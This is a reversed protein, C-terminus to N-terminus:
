QREPECAKRYTADPIYTKWQAKTLEAGARACVDRVAQAPDVVHRQVSVHTGSAYLTHNDSSFALSTLPEGATPLPGGLPQRTQTDWLQLTGADGGVALTRGDHSLALATISESSEASSQLADDLVAVPDAPDGDWLTVRGTLDGAALWSHGVTGSSGGVVFATASIDADQALKPPLRRASPLRVASGDGVLVRGDPSLALHSDALGKVTGARRAHVTDWIEDVTGGDDTARAVYLTHTGPALALSRIDDAPGTPTLPVTVPPRTGTLDRVTVRRATGYVFARGDPSFALLPLGAASVSPLTRPRGGGTSRLTFHYAAGSREVTALTNGDPALLTADSPRAHWASATPTTVDYSHVTNDSLYRLIPHTPDWALEGYTQQEGLPHRFVPAGPASLRWVRIETTDDTALFAGDPSFVASDVEADEPAAVQRGTRTDWIHIGLASVLALRHTAAESGRGFLLQAGDAACLDGASRWAGPVARHETTDRVEVGHSTCAAIQRDDPDTAVADVGRARTEYLLRGGDVSRVQVRGSNADSVTYSRGSSGFSIDTTRRPLPRAGGTWRHGATDWLRIGDGTSLALVRADPAAAILQTGAPLAGSAIRAHTTVDWTRWTTGDVTLLTRGADTLVPSPGNPTPVTFADLDPQALAALVARRSEPLPSLRWAAASLLLATRPDTTRLSDAVAAVRRAAAETRQHGNARHQSWALLGAALAVALVASLSTLLLRSRRAARVATRHETDRAELATEVFEAENGTLEHGLLEQARDLRTGRWLAGPDRGAERWAHAAETLRRQDRLRDRGEELWDALRPWCTILAEHALQVGDEDTTLLRARALRDVVHPVAPDTWEDLEARNLPRRTDPTGPGRGPEVLRMLLLRAVTRSEPELEAYVEEATAAIAGRVGGAAEYAALTLMRSRRRRWTELLAHSLMPLGGPEDLVEDVVRATLEREVLLGTAAAPRVVAERLEDATMPGLALAAGRLADALGRHELCRAYFDARVSILVRLGSDPERAALLLDIFRAREARDQCLTFLEEFQDVVVWSEPADTQAPALLGGYTAAPSPGPTLIRLVAPRDGDAARERLRPILGARLLSSKGSGSAGFLVALRHDGVLRELETVMPERGFFLGRDGPEFRALGRYPPRADEERVAVALAAETEKWLTEWEAPDGDCASVYGQVANWTPLQEGAAARSLTTASVGSTAAMSRYSPGGAARRLERLQHALQPVPGAEPDLASEPRGM